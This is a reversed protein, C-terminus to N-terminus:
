SGINLIRDGEDLWSRMEAVTKLRLLLERNDALDAYSLEKVPNGVLRMEWEVPLRHSNPLRRAVGVGHDIDVVVIEVNDLLRM